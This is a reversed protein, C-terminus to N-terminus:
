GFIKYKQIGDNHSNSEWHRPPAMDWFSRRPKSRHVSDFAKSFDVFRKTTQLNSQGSTRFLMVYLWSKQFPQYIKEFAIKIKEVKKRNRLMSNYIKAANFTLAIIRYNKQPHFSIRLRRYMKKDSRWELYTELNLALVNCLSIRSRLTM